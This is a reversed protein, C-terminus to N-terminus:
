TCPPNEIGARRRANLRVSLLLLAISAGYFFGMIGMMLDEANGAWRLAFKLISALLFAAMGTRLLTKPDNMKRRLM